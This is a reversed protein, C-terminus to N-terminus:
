SKLINFAQLVGQRKDLNSFEVKNFHDKFTDFIEIWKQLSHSSCLSILENGSLPTPLGINKAQSQIISEVVWLFTHHIMEFTGNQGMKGAQDSLHHIDVWNFDPYTKLIELVQHVIDLGKVDLIQKARGISGQSMTSLIAQDEESITQGVEKMLLSTLTDTNLPLFNLVRCRSRITPILAGIRHTVLILLANKPPEELIKLMANQANRNMTDADDIIVIRWGGESSTMRLFPAVKRATEVDVNNKRTGKRTDEPREITLLDPHGGSVVRSFVPDERGVDLSTAQVPADGFLNDQASDPTGNKLLNRALRYAMTSKGIGEFGNFIIAHPLSDANILSLLTQEVDNHGLCQISERPPLLGEPEEIQPENFGFDEAENTEFDDFM